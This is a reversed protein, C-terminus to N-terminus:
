FTEASADMAALNSGSSARKLRLSGTSLVRKMGAETDKAVNSSFPVGCFMLLYLSVTALIAVAFVDLRDTVRPMYGDWNTRRQYLFWADAFFLLVAAWNTRVLHTLELSEKHHRLCHAELADCAAVTREANADDMDIAARVSRAHSLFISYLAPMTKAQTMLKVALGKRIKVVGTFVDRNNYLKALTAIAMVQPVSCFSFVQPQKLQAMYELCAPAHELADTVLHNLCALGQEVNEPDAFDGLNDAYLEWVDKPWFARGDVYDELYDRIINTKQLFLGMDNSLKKADAVSEDEHGAAAFLSSLGEGVLGAVYHCYLNYEGMNNTGQRLDRDVFRAMGEGMRRTIDRIVDRHSPPLVGFTRAVHGFERLLRAEDAEGVGGMNWSDDDLHEYFVKLEEVKRPVDGDFAGVDDEVTDLGRLALYFVCVSRRLDKPLQQIVAAFSRSVKCLIDECFVDDETADEPLKSKGAGSLKYAVAAFVEDVHLLQQWVPEKHTKVKGYAGQKKLPDGSASGNGVRDFDQGARHITDPDYHKDLTGEAMAEWWQPLLSREIIRFWPSVLDGRDDAGEVWERLETQDFWRVEAVENSNPRVVPDKPPTCILIYDIEHEGWIEDSRAKYHVRTLFRFSELPVDDPNIGLEQELKRRAANKVGAEGDLESEMFLPHSCCTNAWYHPFTIKEPSRKQLLLKGEQNFMFVSFARHLMGKDINVNLHTDKKSGPGLVNDDNDLLICEEAMMARQESDAAAMIDDISPTAKSSAKRRRVLVITAVVAVIAVVVTADFEFEELM